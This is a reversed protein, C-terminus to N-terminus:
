HIMGPKPDFARQYEKALAELLEKDIQKELRKRERPDARSLEERYKDRLNQRLITARKELGHWEPVIEPAM